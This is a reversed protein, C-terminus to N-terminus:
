QYDSLINQIDDFDTEDDFDFDVYGKKNYFVVSYTDDDFRLNTYEDMVIGVTEYDKSRIELWGGNTYIKDPIINGYIYPTSSVFGYHVRIPKIENLIKEIMNNNIKIM